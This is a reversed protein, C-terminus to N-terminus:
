FCCHGKITSRILSNGSPCLKQNTHLLKKVKKSLKRIPEAEVSWDFHPFQPFRFQCAGHQSESLEAEWMLKYKSQGTAFSAMLFNDSLQWFSTLLNGCILWFRTYSAVIHCVASYATGVYFSDFYHILRKSSCQLTQSLSTSTVSYRQCSPTNRPSRTCCRILKLRKRWTVKSYRCSTCPLAIVPVMVTYFVM